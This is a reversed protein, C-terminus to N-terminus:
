IYKNILNIQKNNKIFKNHKITRQHQLKHHWTYKGGCACNIKKNIQEKNKKYYKKECEKHQENRQELTRYSRDCNLGPELHDIYVQEIKRQELKDQVEITAIVMKSWNSWGGNERIFKYVKLNYKSCNPNNCYSKHDSIRHKYNKTSGIYFDRKM